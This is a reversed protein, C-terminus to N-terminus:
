TVYAGGVQLATYGETEEQKIQVVQCNDLQLVTAPHRRGWKDWVSLMGVKM